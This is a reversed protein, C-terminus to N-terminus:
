LTGPTDIDHIVGRDASEILLLKDGHAEIIARAGQEGRLARLAPGHRAAFGVPHGRQGHYVPAVIDAGDDLAAVLVQILPVPVYPMDALAILWGAAGPSAAVGSAISSGMGTAAQPNAVVQLDASELLRATEGAEDDVVGLCRPLVQRLRRASALGMPTGDALPHLLKDKGFRTSQGAALLIGTCDPM